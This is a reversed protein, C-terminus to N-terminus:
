DREEIRQLMEKAVEVPSVQKAETLRAVETLDRFHLGNDAM